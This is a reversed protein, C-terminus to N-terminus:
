VSQERGAVYEIKFAFLWQSCDCIKGVIGNVRLATENESDAYPSITIISTTNNVDKLTLCARDL